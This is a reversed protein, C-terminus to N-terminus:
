RRSVPMWGEGGGDAEQATMYDGVPGEARRTRPLDASLATVYGERAGQGTHSAPAPAYILDLRGGLSEPSARVVTYVVIEGPSFSAWSWAFRGSGGVVGHVLGSSRAWRVAEDREAAEVAGVVGRGLSRRVEAAVM